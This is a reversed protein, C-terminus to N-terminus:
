AAESGLHDCVGSRTIPNTPISLRALVRAIAHGTALTDPHDPGLVRLRAPLVDRYEQEAQEYLGRRALVWAVGHRTALTEPHDPGLVRLRAALVDRYEQEAEAYEGRFMHANAVRLRLSLVAPHDAGLRAAYQLGSEALEQSALYSGAWVFSLATSVTVDVLAVLNDDTLRSALYGYVANLHPVLQVWAPWDGPQDVGLEAAAATLLAVAIGGTRAPDEADLHLRSTETVLPHVTVGPRTGAPGPSTAILGASALAALGDAAGDEGDQYMRGLVALDLMAPPILVAPALCSLVRLLPRAQPRGGAALGDLSLEWTSTVVARDDAAGHGMLRGFREDLARAYEQFTREAAFESALQSGAHHLALPLGGLRDSLVAADEAPGAEPALDALVRAGTVADLWGVPHLEAHRGWAHPDRIRSTVVILGSESARLWGAGGAVDNGDVTLADLDDANDFVLLWGPRAELFRWLLDAPDRRGNLAETVEGLPAGLDRALGLLKATVTGADVAQVWWASRGLRTMEEALLLAVTSKGTGGLGALVHVRGDPAGALIRLRVLLDDRGRVREPLQGTPARLVTAGAGAADEEPQEVVVRVRDGPGLPPHRRRSRAQMVAIGVAAAVAAVAAGSGVVTWVLTADV